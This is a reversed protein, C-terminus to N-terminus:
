QGYSAPAKGDTGGAAEATPLIDLVLAEPPALVRFPPGWTGAGRSVILHRSGESYIGNIHPYALRVVWSFPFMQGRHTHGSLMLDVDEPVDDPWGRPSHSLLIHVVDEGPNDSAEALAPSLRANLSRQGLAPDNVGTVRLPTSPNLLRSANQLVRVGAQEYFALSADVGSYVEHNGLVAWVPFQRSLRRVLDLERELFGTHDNLLDGGICVLDPEIRECLRVLEELRGFSPMLGLHLDSFFVLRLPAAAQALPIEHRTVDFRERAEYVGYALVLCVLAVGAWFWAARPAFVSQLSAPGWHLAVWGVAYVTQVCFLYFLVGLWIYTAWWISTLAWRPLWDPVLAAWLPTLSLFLTLPLAASWARASFGLQLGSLGFVVLHMLWYVLFFVVLFWM